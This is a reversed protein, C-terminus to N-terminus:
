RARRAVRPTVLAAIAAPRAAWFLKTGGHRAAWIGRAHELNAGQLNAERLEPGLVNAERLDAQILWAGRLDALSLDAGRLNAKHLLAGQLNVGTLDAGCLNAGRLNARKGFEGKSEVWNRHQELVLVGAVGPLEEKAIGRSLSERPASTKTEEIGEAM